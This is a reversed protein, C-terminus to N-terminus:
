ALTFGNHPGCTGVHVEELLRREEAADVCRLLRLDLTGRYMIEKNLFFHNAMRRLTRKQKNTANKPYERMELLKKIDYYWPQGDLEEDVHFCYAQQDRTEVKIPNIYDKDPHQIM